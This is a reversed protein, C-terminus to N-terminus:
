AAKRERRIVIFLELPPPTFTHIAGGGSGETVGGRGRELLPGPVSVGGVCAELGMGDGKEGLRERWLVAQVLQRLTAILEPSNRPSTGLTLQQAAAGTKSAEITEQQVMTM